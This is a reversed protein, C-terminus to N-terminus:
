GLMARPELFAEIRNSDPSRLDMLTVDPRYQWFRQLAENVNAAEVLLLM